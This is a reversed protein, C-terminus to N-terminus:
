SGAVPTAVPSAMPMALQSEIEGRTPFAIPDAACAADVPAAPDTLFAAIIPNACDPDSSAPDHGQAAFEVVQSNPFNAAVIDGNEPPTIPDFAGTIILLPENSTVPQNEVPDAAPFKWMPCVQYVQDGLAVWSDGALPAALDVKVEASNTASEPSFPVEDQCFYTFFAGLSLNGSMLFMPGMLRLISDDGQAVSTVLYPLVPTVQGVFVGLYMIQLFQFDDVPLEFGKGTVVDPISLTMPETALRETAAVFAGAPDPNDAACVSDAACARWVQKLAADFGVTQDLFPNAELPLPSAIVTARISDPFDRMASLALKSGYSIGYLDVQEYGMAIRIADIDAANHRTTFATIDTGEARLDNGCMALALGPNTDTEPARGDAIPREFPCSLSPRALGMGRQDFLIVDQRERMFSWLPLEDGFLPLVSAMNQGPGGLLIILPEPAPSPTTAMVRIIPLEVTGPQSGDAYMPATVWGCEVENAPLGTPLEYMCDAQRYGPSEPVPSAVPTQALVTAVPSLLAALLLMIVITPLRVALPRPM